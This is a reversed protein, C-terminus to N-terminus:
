ENIVEQNQRDFVFFFAGSMNFIILIFTALLQATMAKEPLCGGATLLAITVADRAGIGSPFFPILGAINGIVVATAVTSIAADTGIGKLLLLMTLAPLLHIFIMSFLVWLIIRRCHTSYTETAAALRTLLGGSKSDAFRYLRNGSIKRHLFIVIGALIGAACVGCFILWIINGAIVGSSGPLQMKSFLDKRYLLLILALAFLAIMGVIRDMVISFIGETRSGKRINGSVAAMKVIDGGISGGPIILSFFLAQMTLSFAKLRSLAIGITVALAQWRLSAAIQPLVASFVIPILLSLSFSAIEQQWNGGSNRRYLWFIVAAAVSIKLLMKIISYFNSNKKNGM